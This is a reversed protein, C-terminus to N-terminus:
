NASLDEEEFVLTCVGRADVVAKVVRVDHEVKFPHQMAVGKGAPANEAAIIAVTDATPLAPKKWFMIWSCGVMFIAMASCIVILKIAQKKRGEDSIVFDM